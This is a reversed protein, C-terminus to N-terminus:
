SDIGKSLGFSEKVNAVSKILEAGINKAKGKFSISEAVAAGNHDETRWLNESHDCKKELVVSFPSFSFTSEIDLSFLFWILRFSCDFM